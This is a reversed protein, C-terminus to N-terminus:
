HLTNDKTNYNRIYDWYAKVEAQELMNFISEIDDYFKKYTKLIHPAMKVKLHPLSYNCYVLDRLVLFEAITVFLVVKEREYPEAILLFLKTIIMEANNINDRVEFNDIIEEECRLIELCRNIQRLLTLILEKPIKLGVSEEISKFYIEESKQSM